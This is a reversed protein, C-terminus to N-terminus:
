PYVESDLLLIDEPRFFSSATLQGTVNLTGGVTMNNDVALGTGAARFRASSGDVTQAASAGDTLASKLHDFNTRILDMLSDAVPSKADVDGSALATFAM